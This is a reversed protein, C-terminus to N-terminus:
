QNEVILSDIKERITESKGDDDLDIFVSITEDPTSLKLAHFMKFKDLYGAEYEKVLEKVLESTKKYAEVGGASVFNRVKQKYEELM